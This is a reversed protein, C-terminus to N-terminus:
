NPNKGHLFTLFEMHFECCILLRLLCVSLSVSPRVSPRVENDDDDVCSTSPAAAASIITSSACRDPTSRSDTCHCGILAPDKLLIDYGSSPSTRSYVSETYQRRFPRNFPLRASWCSSALV